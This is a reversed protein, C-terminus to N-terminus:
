NKNFSFLNSMIEYRNFRLLSKRTFEGREEGVGRVTGAGPGPQDLGSDPSPVRQKVRGKVDFHQHSGQPTLPTYYTILIVGLGEGRM